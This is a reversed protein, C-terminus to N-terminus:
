QMIKLIKSLTIKFAFVVSREPGSFYRSKRSFPGWTLFHTHFIVNKSDSTPDPNQSFPLVDGSQIRPTSGGSNIQKAYALM